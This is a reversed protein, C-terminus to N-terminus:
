SGSSKDSGRLRIARACVVIFGPNEYTEKEAAAEAQGPALEWFSEGDVDGRM